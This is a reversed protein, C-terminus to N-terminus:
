KIYELYEFIINSILCCSDYVSISLINFKPLFYQLCTQHCIARLRSVVVEGTLTSLKAYILLNNTTEKRVMKQQSTMKRLSCTTVLYLVLNIVAALIIPAVGSIVLSYKNSIYCLGEGYGITVRESSSGGSSALCPAPIEDVVFDVTGDFDHNFEMEDFEDDVITNYTINGIITMSVILAPVVLSIIVYIYFRSNNKNRGSSQSHDAVELKTFVHYMHASCLVMWTFASLLFFHITVGVIECAVTVHGAFGGVLFLVLATLLTSCFGMISKGPVTRLSPITIYTMLTLLLSVISLSLCVYSTVVLGLGFTESNTPKQKDNVNTMEDSSQSIKEHLYSRFVDVCLQIENENETTQFDLFSVEEGTGNHRLVLGRTNQDNESSSSNILFQFMDSNSLNVTILPCSLTHKVALFHESLTKMNKKLDCQFGSCPIDLDVFYRGDENYVYDKRSRLEASNGSPSLIRSTMNTYVIKKFKRFPNLNGIELTWTSNQGLGLLRKEFSLAEVHHELFMEIFVSVTFIDSTALDDM